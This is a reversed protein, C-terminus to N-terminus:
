HATPKKPPVTAAAGRRRDAELEEEVMREAREQRARETEWEDVTRALEDVSSTLDSKSGQALGIGIVQSHIRRVIQFSREFAASLEDRTARVRDINQVHQQAEMLAAALNAKAGGEAREVEAQLRTVEAEAASKSYQPTALVVETQEIRAEIRRIGELLSRIRSVEGSVGAAAAAKVTEDHLVEVEALRRRKEAALASPAGFMRRWTYVASAILIGGVVLEDVAPVPDPVRLDGLWFALVGIDLLAVAWLPITDLRRRISSLAQKM